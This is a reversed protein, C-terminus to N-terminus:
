ECEVYGTARWCVIQNPKILSADVYLKLRDFLIAGKDEMTFEQIETPKKNWIQLILKCGRKQFNKDKRDLTLALYQPKPQGEM